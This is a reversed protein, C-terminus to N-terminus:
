FVYRSAVDTAVLIRRGGSKFKALAGLRQSQNLDGHLPIAPFGLTKLMIALRPLWTVRSYDSDYTHKKGLLM